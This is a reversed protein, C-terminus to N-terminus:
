LVPADEPNVCWGWALEVGDRGEFGYGDAGIDQAFRPTTPSGGIMVKVQDRLGARVLANVVNKMELQTATLLASMALIDPEHERVAEVFREAPIDVGLDIVEFGRAKLLMSTITKGIDHIDGQVTGIIIKGLHQLNIDKRQIASEIVPLAEKMNEAAWMIDTLEIQERAYRRDVEKMGDALANLAKLPDVGEELATEAWERAEGTIGNVISINLQDLIEMHRKPILVIRRGETWLYGLKKLEQLCLTITTRNANILEGFDEHTINVGIEVGSDTTIGHEDALKILMQKLRQQADLFSLGQAKSSYVKTKQALEQMVLASYQLNTTLTQQFETPHIFILSADNMAEATSEHMGSLFFDASGLLHGTGLIDHTYVKGDASLSSIKVAGSQIVFISDVPDGQWYLINGKTYRRIQGPWYKQALNLLTTETPPVQENYSPDLM